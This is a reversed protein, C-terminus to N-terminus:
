TEWPCYTEIDLVVILLFKESGEDFVTLASHCFILVSFQQYQFIKRNIVCDEWAYFM